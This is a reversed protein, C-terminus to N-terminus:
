TGYGVLRIIRNKVLFNCNLYKLLLIVGFVEDLANERGKTLETGVERTIKCETYTSAV